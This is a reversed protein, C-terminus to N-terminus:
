RRLDEIGIQARQRLSAYAAGTYTAIVSDYIGRAVENCGHDRAAEAVQLIWGGAMVVADVGSREPDLLSATLLASTRAKALTPSTCSPPAEQEWQALPRLTESGMSTLLARRQDLLSQIGPPTDTPNLNACAATAVCILAVSIAVKNPMHPDALDPPVM